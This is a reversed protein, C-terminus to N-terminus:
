LVFLVENLVRKDDFPYKVGKIEQYKEHGKGAILIIDGERAIAVAMKIAERRDIQVLVKRMDDVGKKMDDIIAEPEESRPNDSTFIAQDSSDVAIKAMEPRKSVDRDGGCGVVTIVRQSPTRMDNITKLVNELADPTHAYDVIGVIGTKPEVIYDFRGEAGTLGSMIRLVEVADHGMEVTAAYVALFNYANFRGVMRCYVEHGNIELHLGQISNDLIKGKYDAMRQLAYRRIRAATNQVMVEGKNDDVNTIALSGKPLHDFLLKKAKIYEAFTGHYDLHDHTINTFIGSSFKLGFTRKQHLAHSSVEMVAHTCGSDVMERLLRNLSIPDPTTHSAELVVDDIKNHVTSLLGTKFGLERFVDYLLTVITTKGNTGTVGILELYESPHGYYNSAMLSVAERSDTVKIHTVGDFDYNGDKEYVIAVAGNKVAMEIFDHGDATYGDIAIFVDGKGLKRSDVHIAQFTQNQSGEVKEVVVGQMLEYLNGAYKSM